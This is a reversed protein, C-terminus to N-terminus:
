KQRSLSQYLDIMPQQNLQIAGEGPRDLDFIIQMVVAFALALALNAIFSRKGSIGFQFGVAGMAICSALILAFWIFM